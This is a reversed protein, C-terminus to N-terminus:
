GQITAPWRELNFGQVFAKCQTDVPGLGPEQPYQPFGPLLTRTPCGGGGQHNTATYPGPRPGVHIKLTSVKFSPEPALVYSGPM